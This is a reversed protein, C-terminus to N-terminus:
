KSLHNRNPCSGDPGSALRAPKASQKPMLRPDDLVHRGLGDPQMTIASIDNELEAKADNCPGCASLILNWHNALTGKPVFRRGIVHENEGRDGPGFAHGCYACFASRRVILRSPSHATLYTM